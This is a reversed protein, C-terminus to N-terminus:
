NADSKTKQNELIDKEMRKFQKKLKRTGLFQFIKGKQKRPTGDSELVEERYTIEIGKRTPAIEYSMINIGFASTIKSKYVSARKYELLVVNGNFVRKRQYYKRSYKLGKEIKEVKIKKSANHEIDYRLSAELVDFFAEASVSINQKVEIM